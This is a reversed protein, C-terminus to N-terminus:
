EVDNPDEGDSILNNAIPISRFFIRHDHVPWYQLPSMNFPIHDPAHSLKSHGHISLSARHHEHAIYESTIKVAKKISKKLSEYPEMSCMLPCNNADKLVILIHSGDMYIRTKLSSKEFALTSTPLDDTKSHHVKKSNDIMLKLESSLGNLDGHEIKRGHIGYRGDHLHDIEAGHMIINKIASVDSYNKKLNAHPHSALVNGTMFQARGDHNASWHGYSPPLIGSMVILNKM